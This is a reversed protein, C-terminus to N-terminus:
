LQEQLLIKHFIRWIKADWLLLWRWEAEKRQDTDIGQISSDGMLCQKTHVSSDWKHRFCKHLLEKVYLPLFFVLKQKKMRGM